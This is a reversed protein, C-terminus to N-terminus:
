ALTMGSQKLISVIQNVTDQNISTPVNVSQGSPSKFQLTHTMGSSSSSTGSSSTGSNSSSTTTTDNNNKSENAKAKIETELNKEKLGYLEELKNKQEDYLKILEQNNELRAKQLNSETEALNQARENELALRDAEDNLGKERLIEENLKELEQKADQTKQKMEELKQNADSLAQKLNSLDQEDLLSFGNTAEQSFAALQNTAVTLNRMGNNTLNEVQQQLYEAQISQEYFAKKAKGAALEISAEWVRFGNAAYLLKDRSQDILQNALALEGKFGSVRKESASAESNFAAMATRLAGISGEIGHDSLAKQLEVEFLQRTKASLKDMEARTQGLYASLGQLAASGDNTHKINDEQAKSNEQVSESHQKTKTIAADKEKVQDKTSQIDREKANVSQEATQVEEQAAQNSPGAQAALQRKQELTEKLKELEKEDVAIKDLLAKKEVELQEISYRTVEETDGRAAAEEKLVDISAVRSKANSDINSKENDLNRTSQQLDRDLRGFGSSLTQNKRELEAVELGLGQAAAQQKIFEPTAKGAAISAKIEAEAAALFSKEIDKASATGSAKITNYEQTAKDALLKLSAASNVGLDKFAREATPLQQALEETKQRVLLLGQAYAEAGIKGADFARKYTAALKDLEQQTQAQPVAKEFASQIVISSASVDTAIKEFAGTIKAGDNTIGNTVKAFNGGLESLSQIVRLSANANKDYETTLNVLRKNEADYTLGTKEAIAQLRERTKIDEEVADNAKAREAAERTAAEEEAQRAEAAERRAKAEEAKQQNIEEQKKREEEGVGLWGKVADITDGISMSLSDQWGTQKMIEKTLLYTGTGMAALSGLILSASAGYTTLATIATQISTAIGGFRLANLLLLEPMGTLYAIAMQMPIGLRAFSTGLTLLASSLNIGAAGAAISAIKYIALLEIVKGISGAFWEFVGAVKSYIELIYQFSETFGVVSGAAKTFSPSMNDVVGLIGRFHGLVPAMGEAMGGIYSIASAVTNSLTQLAKTLGEVTTLDEGALEKFLDGFGASLNSIGQILPQWDIKSLAEPINKAVAKIYTEVSSLQEKLADFVKDFSGGKTAEDFAQTMDAVSNVVAAAQPKFKTGLDVALAIFQDQARNTATELSQLRVEVEKAASGQSNMAVATVEASYKLGDFVKVMKAAQEVGVIQSTIFTKQSEDLHQFAAVVEALVEKGSKLDGNLKYQSIGLSSLAETVPKANDTLKLLGVKLADAAEEGSRFVEIVPTLLGTTEEFSFGMQKAIPSLKAMGTALQDVNTAYKNSVENLIDALRESASGADDLPVQFGKLISILYESAKGADLDGAIMLKTNTNLLKFSQDLSYGAAVFNTAGDIMGNTALGYQVALNKIDDAYKDVTASSEDSVKKLGLLSNEYDKAANLSFAALASAAASASGGLKLISNSFPEVVTNFSGFKNALGDLAGSLLGASYEGRSLAGSVQGGLLQAAGYVKAIIPTANDTAQLIVDITEKISAM